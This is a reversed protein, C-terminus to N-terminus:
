TAAPELPVVKKASRRAPRTDEAGTALALEDLADHLCHLFREPEELADATTTIGINTTDLYSMIVLTLGMGDYIPAFTATSELPAGDLNLPMPMGAINTIVLNFVPWLHNALRCAAYARLYLGTPLSPLGTLLRELEVQQNFRKARQANQQVLRLRELPDSTGTALGVLMASVQNGTIGTRSEVRRSVPAMAVLERAPIQQRAQLYGHLAGGCVALVVDNVTLGPQTDRIRKLRSLSLEAHLQLRQADAPINFPTAPPDIYFLPQMGPEQRRLQWSARASRVAQSALDLTRRPLAPLDTTLARQWTRLRSPTPAPNWHDAPLAPPEPGDLLSTIIAKASLGDCAAHHVKLILAFRRPSGPPTNKETVLMAEWLPRDRDLLRAFFGQVLPQLRAQTLPGDLERFRLHDSLDFDPDDVWCSTGLGLPPMILRERFVPALPMRRTIHRRLRAPTMPNDTPDHFIFTGGINMPLHPTELHLFSADLNSLPRM